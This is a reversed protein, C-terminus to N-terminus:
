RPRVEIPPLENAGQIVSAALGSTKPNAYRLPVVNRATEDGESPNRVQATRFCTVTVEYAGAPAGDGRVYSTLTFYGQEDTSGAPRPSDDAANVPHFTVQALPLPKGGVVVRGRVPHVPKATGGCGSSLLAFGAVVCLSFRFVTRM